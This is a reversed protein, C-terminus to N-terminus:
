VHSACGKRTSEERLEALWRDASAVASASAVHVGGVALPLVFKFPDEQKEVAESRAQKTVRIEKDLQACSLQAPESVTTACGVTFGAAALLLMAGARYRNVLPTRM